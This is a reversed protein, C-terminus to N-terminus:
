LTLCSQTVESESECLQAQLKMAATVTRLSKPAWSSFIQQEKWKEGKQKGYLVESQIILHGKHDLTAYEKTSLFCAVFIHQSVIIEITQFHVYM